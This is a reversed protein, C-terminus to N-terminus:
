AMVESLLREIRTVADSHRQTNQAIQRNYQTADPVKAGGQFGGRATLSNTKIAFDGTIKQNGLNELSHTLEVLKLTQAKENDTLPSGKAEEARALAKREDAEKTRGVARLARDYLSEIEKVQSKRLKAAGLAENLKLIKQISAEDYSLGRKKLENILLQKQTAEDMKSAIRTQAAIQDQLITIQEKYFQASELAQRKRLIATAEAETLEIGKAKLENILKLVAAQEKLGADGEAPTAKAKRIDDNTIQEDAFFDNKAKASDEKRKEAETNKKLEEAQKAESSYGTERLSEFEDYLDRLKELTDIVNQWNQIDSQSNSADRLKEAMEIREELPRTNMIRMVEKRADKAQPISLGISQMFNEGIFMSNVASEAQKLSKKDHADLQRSIARLRQNRQKELFAQQAKDAVIIKGTVKDISIGLDGYRETLLRILLAAETKAANSLKEMKSLELLREMYGSDDSQQATLKEKAKDAKEAISSLKAMYEESSLTLKDWVQVGVALLAGFAAVLVALPGAALASIAQGVAGFQQGISAGFASLAGGVKSVDGALKGTAESVSKGANTTSKALQQGAKEAANSAAAQMKATKAETLSQIRDLVAEYEKADLTIKGIAPM